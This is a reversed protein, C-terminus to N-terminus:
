ETALTNHWLEPFLIDQIHRTVIPCKAQMMQVFTEIVAGEPNVSGLVQIGLPNNKTM